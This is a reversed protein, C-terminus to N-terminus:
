SRAYASHAAQASLSSALRLSFAPQPSQGSSLTVMVVEGPRRVAVLECKTAAVFGLLVDRDNGGVTGVALPTRAVRAKRGRRGVTLQNGEERDSITVGLNVDHLGVPGLLTPRSQRWAASGSVL